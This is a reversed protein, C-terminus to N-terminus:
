LNTQEATEKSVVNMVKGTGYLAKLEIELNKIQEKIIDASRFDVEVELAEKLMKMREEIIKVRESIEEMGMLSAKLKENEERVKESHECWKKYGFILGGVALVFLGIPGLISLISVKGAAITTNTVVSVTRFSLMKPILATITKDVGVLALKLNTLYLSMLILLGGGSFLQGM